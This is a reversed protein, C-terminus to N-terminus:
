REDRWGSKLARRQASSPRGSDGAVDDERHPHRIGKEAPDISPKAKSPFGIVSM